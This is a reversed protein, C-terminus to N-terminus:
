PLGHTMSVLAGQLAEYLQARAGAFSHNRADVAIFRHSDTDAGFLARASTAPLYNDNTSQIVTLPLDGLRPLYEYVQLMESAQARQRRGIRRYWRVYEEEKTLGVAVLGGLESRVARQGAAAVSLGAGRSVGVLVVPVDRSLQLGDRAAAIIAAYDRALRGPTTTGRETQQRHQGQHRTSAPVDLHTVYDHADFGAVAYGWAVLHRYVDLDKGAWGRDGTAYILLPSGAGIRRDAMHVALAHGNLTVRRDVAVGPPRVLPARHMGCGGSVVLGVCLTLRTIPRRGIGPIVTM